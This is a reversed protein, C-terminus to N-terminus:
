HRLALRREGGMVLDILEVADAGVAKVKYRGALLEGEKVLFLEGSLAAVIATRVLGKAERNEAVGILEIAPEAPPPPVVPAGPDEVAAPQRARPVETPRPAFAFPNRTTQHPAPATALRTKLRETQAQVDAALTATGAPEVPRPPDEVAPTQRGGLGGASAFWALLLLGGGSYAAARKATM